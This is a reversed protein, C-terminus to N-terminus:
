QFPLSRDAGVPAATNPLRYRPSPALTLAAEGRGGPLHTGDWYPLTRQPAGQLLSFYLFREPPCGRDGPLRPPPQVGAERINLM